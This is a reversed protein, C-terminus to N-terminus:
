YGRCYLCRFLSLIHPEQYESLKYRYSQQLAASVLTQMANVQAMVEFKTRETKDKPFQNATFASSNQEIIRRYQEMGMGILPANPQWRDAAKVFEVSDDIIGRNALQIKLAREADDRSHVRFYQMLQEFVTEAFKNEMRNQLHCADYLMHGLSRVTHYHFPALPSLDAFEFHIIQSM